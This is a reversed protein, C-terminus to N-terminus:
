YSLARHNGGLWTLRAYHNWFTSSTMSSKKGTWPDNYYIRSKNYGTLLLAHNPFNDVWSVWTVVPHGSFVQKKLASLSAGTMIKYRGLYKQVLRALGSPAIWTGSWSYPNGIFGLKPNSSRPTAAAAQYKNIKKGAYNIMMTAAVIECGTVLPRQGIPAANLRIETVKGSKKSVWYYAKKTNVNKFYKRFTKPSFYNYTSKKVKKLGTQLKGQKNGFYWCRGYKKLGTQLKGSKSLLYSSKGVKQVGKLMHSNAAFYYKHGNLVQWGTLKKQKRYYYRKGSETKWGDPIQQHQTNKDNNQNNQQPQGSNQSTNQQDAQKQETNQTSQQTTVQAAQPNDQQKNNGQSTQETAPQPNIQNRIKVPKRIRIM